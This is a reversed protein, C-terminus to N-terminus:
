IFSRSSAFRSLLKKSFFVVVFFVALFLLVWVGKNKREQTHPDSAYVLFTVLDTTTADFAEPSLSGEHILKLTQYYRVADSHLIPRMLQNLPVREQVGQMGAFINTM